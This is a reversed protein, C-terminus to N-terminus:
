QANAVVTTSEDSEAVSKHAAAVPEAPDPNTPGAAPEPDLCVLDSIIQNVTNSIYWWYLM